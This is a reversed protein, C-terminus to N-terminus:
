TYWSNVLHETVESKKDSLGDSMIEKHLLDLISKDEYKDYSELVEVKTESDSRKLVETDTVIIEMHVRDGHVWSSSEKSHRMYERQISHSMVPSSNSNSISTSEITCDTYDTEEEITCGIDVMNPVSISMRDTLLHRKRIDLFKRSGRKTRKVSLNQFLPRTKEKLSGWVSPKDLEM